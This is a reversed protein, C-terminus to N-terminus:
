WAKTLARQLGDLSRIRKKKIEGDLYSWVDEMPNLDPSNQPITGFGTQPLEMWFIPQSKPRISLTMTESATETTTRTKKTKRKKSESIERAYYFPAPKGSKARKILKKVEPTSLKRRRGSRPMMSQGLKRINRFWIESVVEVLGSSKRSEGRGNRKM